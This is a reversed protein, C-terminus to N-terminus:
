GVWRSKGFCPYTELIDKTVSINGQLWSKRGARTADLLDHIVQPAPVSRAESLKMLANVNELYSNDSMQEEEPQPQPSCSVLRPPLSVKPIM